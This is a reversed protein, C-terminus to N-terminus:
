QERLEGLLEELDGLAILAWGYSNMSGHPFGYSHGEEVAPLGEYLAHELLPATRENVEGDMDSSYLVVDAGGLSGIEEFSMPDSWWGDEASLPDLSAGLTRLLAVTPAMSQEVLWQGDATGGVVAWTHGTLEDAYEESVEAVREEYEARLEEFEEVRNVAQALAEHDQDWSSEEYEVTPAIEASRDYNDWTSGVIVDPELELLQEFDLTNWDGIRPVDALADVYQRPHTATDDSGDPIAVPTIGLDILPEPVTWTLTAVRRPDAPVEIEGNVSDVSRTEAATGGEGTDEDAACGAALALCALAAAFPQATRRVLPTPSQPSPM